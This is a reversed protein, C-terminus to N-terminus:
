DRGILVRHANGRPFDDGNEGGTHVEDALNSKPGRGLRIEPRSRRREVDVGCGFGCCSAASGVEVLLGSNLM